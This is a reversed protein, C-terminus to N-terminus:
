ALNDPAPGCYAAPGCTRPPAVLVLHPGACTHPSYATPGLVCQPRSATPGGSIILIQIYVADLLVHEGFLGQVLLSREESRYYNARFKRNITALGM